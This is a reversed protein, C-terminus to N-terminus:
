PRPHDREAEGPFLVEQAPAKYWRVGSTPRRDRGVTTGSSARAHRRRRNRLAARRTAGRGGGLLAPLERKASMRRPAFNWVEAAPM